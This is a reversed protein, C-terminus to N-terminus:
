DTRRKVLTLRNSSDVRQYRMEDTLNRVFHIGLGGIPRQDVSMSLQDPPGGISPDFPKGQDSIEITVNHEDSSLAVKIPEEDDIEGHNIINVCLEELVLNIKFLLDDKWREEHAMTEVASRITGLEDIRPVIEISVRTSM